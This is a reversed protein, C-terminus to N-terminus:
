MKEMVAPPWLYPERPLNPHIQVRAFASPRGTLSNNPRMRSLARQSRSFNSVENPKEGGMWRSSNGDMFVAVSAAVDAVARTPLPPKRFGNALRTSLKRRPLVCACALWIINRAASCIPSSIVRGCGPHRASRCTPDSQIDRPWSSRLFCNHSDLSNISNSSNNLQQWLQTRWANAMRKGHTQM